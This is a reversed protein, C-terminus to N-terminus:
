IKEVRGSGSVNVEGLQPDGLYDVSGSGSLSVGLGDSANVEVRGSGSLDVEAEKGELKRGLFRGSGAVSIEQRDATGELKFRGSGDLNAVLKEVELSAEMRGSGNIVLTLEETSLTSDKLEASGDIVIKKIEKATIYFSAEDTSFGLFPHEEYSIQLENGVVQTKIYKMLRENAEVRLSEEEGQEIVILGSGAISVADFGAVDRVEAMKTPLGFRQQWFFFAGGIVVLAIAIGPLVDSFRGM